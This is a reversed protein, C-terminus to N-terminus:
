RMARFQALGGAESMFLLFDNAFTGVQIDSIMKM